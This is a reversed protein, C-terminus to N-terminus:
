LHSPPGRSQATIAAAGLRSNLEFVSPRVSPVFALFPMCAGLVGGMVQGFAADFACLGGQDIPSEHGAEGGEHAHGEHGDHSDHAHAAHSDAGGGAHWTAHM